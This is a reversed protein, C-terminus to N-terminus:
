NSRKLVGCSAVISQSPSLGTHTYCADLQDPASILMSISGDTDSGVITKGDAAITAAFPEKKNPDSWTEGWLLRGDQGKFDMTITIEVVRPTDSKTEAGAHYANSGYIVTKWPGTWIGKLDPTGAEQASVVSGLGIVVFALALSRM